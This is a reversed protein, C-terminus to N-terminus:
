TVDEGETAPENSPLEIDITDEFDIGQPLYQEGDDPTVNKPQRGNDPLYVVVGSDKKPSEEDVIQGIMGPFSTGGFRTPDQIALLKAAAKWDPLVTIEQRDEEVVVMQGRILKKKQRTIVEVRKGEAAEHIRSLLTVTRLHQVRAFREAFRVYASRMVPDICTKAEKLYTRIVSTPVGAVSAAEAMSAGNRMAGFFLEEKEPPIKSVLSDHNRKLRPADEESM